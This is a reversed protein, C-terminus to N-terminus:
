VVWNKQIWSLHSFKAPDRWGPFVVLKADSPLDSGKPWGPKQFAYIGSQPGVKWGVVTPFKHLFWQQDDPYEYFPLKRVAELSFDTWVDYRYGGRLMWISGNFRCPNSANAGELITFEQTRFFLDDLPGTVVADLDVCVLRDGHAIGHKKQWVPDFARLRCFCGTIETLYEDEPEPSFVHWRYESKMNRAVGARLREVYEPGYKSGWFWTAIHLM